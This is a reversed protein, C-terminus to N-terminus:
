DSKSYRRNFIEPDFPDRPGPPQPRSEESPRNPAVPVPVRIGASASLPGGSTPGPPPAGAAEWSGSGSNGTFSLEEGRRATAEVTSPATPEDSRRTLRRVWETLAAHEETSRAGFIPEALGGHPSQPATLLRSEMPKEYDVMSLAADLNRQTIRHPVSQGRLPRTLQFARETRVGHCANTACRNLLLPQVKETFFEVTGPPLERRNSPGTPRSTQIQPPRTAVPPVPERTALFLRRELPGFRPNAPDLAFARLLQDAARAIVHHRLCWEALDLHANVDGDRIADLKRFYADELTACCMEVKSAPLRAEGQQGFTVIYFDGVCTIQGGLVQGNRLILFGEQPTLSSGDSAGPLPGGVAACVMILLSPVFM